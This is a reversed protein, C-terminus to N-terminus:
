IENSKEIVRWGWPFRASREKREAALSARSAGEAIKSRQHSVCNTRFVECLLRDTLEKPHVQPSTHRTSSRALANFAKSTSASRRAHEFYEMM